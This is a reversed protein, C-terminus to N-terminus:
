SVWNSSKQTNARGKLIFPHTRLSFNPIGKQTNLIWPYWKFQAQFIFLIETSQKPFPIFVEKLINTSLLEMNYIVSNGKYLM